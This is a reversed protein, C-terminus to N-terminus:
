GFHHERWCHCHSGVPSVGLEETCLHANRERPPSQATRSAVRRTTRRANRCLLAIWETASAACRIPRPERRRTMEREVCQSRRNRTAAPSLPASSTLKSVPPKSVAILRRACRSAIQPGSYVSSCQSMRSTSSPEMSNRSAKARIRTWSASRSRSSRTTLLSSMGSTAMWLTASAASNGSLCLLLRFRFLICFYEVHVNYYTCQMLVRVTTTFTYEQVYM